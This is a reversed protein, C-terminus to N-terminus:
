HIVKSEFDKVIKEAIDKIERKELVKSEEESIEGSKLCIQKMYEDM